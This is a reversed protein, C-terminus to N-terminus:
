NAPNVSQHPRTLSPPELSLLAEERGARGNGREKGQGEGEPPSADGGDCRM